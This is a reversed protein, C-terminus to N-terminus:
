GCCRCRPALLVGNQPWMRAANGSHDHFFIEAKKRDLLSTLIECWEAIVALLTWAAM